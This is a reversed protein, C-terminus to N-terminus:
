EVGVGIIEGVELVKQGWDRSTDCALCRQQLSTGGGGVGKGGKKLYEMSSIYLPHEMSLYENEELTYFPITLHLLHRVGRTKFPNEERCRQEVVHNLHPLHTTRAADRTRGTLLM